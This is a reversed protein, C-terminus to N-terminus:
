PSSREPDLDAALKEVVKMFAGASEALNIQGASARANASMRTWSAEDKLLGHATNVWHDVNLECVFGNEAQRVLEGAAGVHPSVLCPVGCQMAENCVLGWPESLSPLLLLRSQLYAESISQWAVNREHVFNIKAASLRAKMRAEAIGTGIVLVALDPIKQRLAIVVDEFFQANKADDNIRACWLVHYRRENYAPSPTPADWAPVLPVVFIRDKAYGHEDFYAMGKRSCCIVARCHGLVWPRVIRHYITDPMNESWGDITLALTRKNAIAWITAALMSPFFGNIFLIDPALRRLARRIHFNIHTFRSRSLGFSFGPVIDHPYRPAISDAWKRDPEQAVCSLVALDLGRDVLENYLRNTYPTIMNNFVVVRPPM